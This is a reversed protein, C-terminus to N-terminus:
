TRTDVRTCKHQIWILCRKCDDAALVSCPLVVLILFTSFILGGCMALAAPVLFPDRGGIGYAVPALGAVTTVTTLVVPRFRRKSGVLVSRRMGMGAARCRNIFSVLILSDNIAVGSLGVLGLLAMFSLPLHHAYFTLIVGIIAFPIGFMVFIPQILSQFLAVLIVYNGLFAIAFAILLSTMSKGQEEQEGGYKVLYGPYTDMIGVFQTRLAQNVVTSTTVKEDINARVKIVRRRDLHNIYSVGAASTLQAIQGLPIMNGQTNEVRIQKLVDPDARVSEPFRVLVDIEEDTKRISTVQGGDFAFRVARGIDTISVGARAAKETDVTVHREMKGTEYDNDIDKVGPVTALFTEFQTAIEQLIEFSEGRLRVEVAKGVPPGAEARDFSVDVIGPLESFPTRLSDIIDSASRDRTQPPTLYVTIQGRHTGRQAGPDGPESETLGVQTIYADVEGPPLAAISEEMPRMYAEMRHLATGVDAAARIYFIEVGGKPFMTFSMQTKFLIGTVAGLLLIGVLVVYRMKIIRGLLRFYKHSSFAILRAGWRRKQRARDVPRAFDALHSPLILLAELLSAILAIIVVMPIYRVFKGIIGTMYMLPTFALITTVITVTVPAMVESLGRIASEKPPTGSEIYRYTNEAVVIADDVLMGLVLILGFMTLLNISLGLWHMVALTSMFAIPLGMATMLAVRANLFFFLLGTVLLVGVWGNNILIGLRRKIFFSMDNIIATEVHPNSQTYEDILRKVEDVITIADGSGQKVIVLNISRTGSSKEIQNTEGYAWHVHAVDRVRLAVGYNNARIIVDAIEEPTEFEGITRIPLEQDGLFIKGGPFNLNHGQLARAIETFSVHMDQMKVPDLEVWIEREHWGGKTVKAVGPLEEFTDELVRAHRRLEERSIDGSLALTMIPRDESVIEEVIPRDVDEPLDEVREVAQQVDSVVRAKNRAAPDVELVIMSLGPVSVSTIEEIDDVEQLEEEIPTTVHREVEPPSAGQFATSVTIMDYDVNPFAERNLSLVGVVGLLVVVISVLNVVLSQEVSWQAFRM